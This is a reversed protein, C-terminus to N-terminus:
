EEESLTKIIEDTTKRLVEPLDASTINSSVAFQNTEPDVAIIIWGLDPYGKAIANMLATTLKSKAGNDYM